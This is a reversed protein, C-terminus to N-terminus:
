TKALYEKLSVRKDGDSDLATFGAILVEDTQEWSRACDKYPCDPEAGGFLRTTLVKDDDTFAFEAATLFGDHDIDLLDFGRSLMANLRVQYEEFSVGNDQNTDMGVFEHARPDDDRDRRSIRLGISIHVGWEGEPQFLGRPGPASPPTLVAFSDRSVIPEAAGADQRLASRTDSVAKTSVESGWFEEATVVGDGNKDLQKFVAQLDPGAASPLAALVAMGALGAGVAFYRKRRIPRPIMAILSRRGSQVEPRRAEADIFREIAERVVESATRGARRCAALFSQKTEHSLRVELLESKKPPRPSRTMM